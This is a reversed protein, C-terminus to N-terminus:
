TFISLKVNSGCVIVTFCPVVTCHVLRSSMGCVTTLSSLVVNLDLGSSVSSLNEYVNVLAPVYGYKQESCGFIVAFTTTSYHQRGHIREVPPGDQQGLVCLMHHQDM